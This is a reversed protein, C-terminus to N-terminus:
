PAVKRIMWDVVLVAAFVMAAVPLLWLFLVEVYRKM